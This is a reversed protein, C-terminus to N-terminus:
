RVNSSGESGEDTLRADMDKMDIVKNDDKALFAQVQPVDVKVRPILAIGLRWVLSDQHSMSHLRGAFDGIRDWRYPRHEGGFFVHVGDGKNDPDGHALSSGIGFGKFGLDDLFAQLRAHRHGAYGQTM